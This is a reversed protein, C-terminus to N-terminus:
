TPPKYHDLLAELQKADARQWDPVLKVLVKSGAALKAVQAANLPLRKVFWEMVRDYSGKRMHIGIVTAAPEREDPCGSPFKILTAVASAWEETALADGCARCVESMRDTLAAAYGLARARTQWGGTHALELVLDGGAKSVTTAQMLYMPVILGLLSAANDDDGHAVLSRVLAIARPEIGAARASGHSFAFAIADRTRPDREAEFADLGAALLPERTADNFGGMCEAALRRTTMAPDRLAGACSAALARDSQHEFALKHIQDPEPCSAVNGGNWTCKAGSAFLAAIAPDRAVEPPHEDLLHDLASGVSAGPTPAHDSNCATLLAGIAIATRALVSTAGPYRM